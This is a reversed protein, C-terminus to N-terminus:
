VWCVTLFWQRPLGFTNAQFPYPTYVGHMHIVARREHEAMQGSAAKGAARSTIPACTCGIAQETVCSAMGPGPASWAAPNMRRELLVYGQGLHYACSLGTLGAGLIVTKHAEM